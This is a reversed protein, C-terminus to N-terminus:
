VAGAHYRFLNEPDHARKVAALRALHAPSYAARAWQPESDPLLNVYPGVSVRGLGRWLDEVLALPERGATGPRWQANVEVFWRAERHAFATADPDVRAIAGGLPGIVLSVAPGGSRWGAVLEDVARDDLERLLEGRAYEARHPLGPPRRFFGPYQAYPMRTVGDHVVPPLAARLPGLVRGARDPHGCWSPFLVLCPELHLEEPVFPVPPATWAVAAFSAEDPAGGIWDRAARLADAAHAARVVVPGCVIDTVPHLGFEFATVVGFAGGGGRLAWFLDPHSDATVRLHEGAATVLAFATVNDCALGISRSLEGIGGGLTYGAIGVAPGHGGPAALGHPLTAADFREWTLGPGALVTAVARDVWACDLAGLDAVIGDDCTGWGAVHQGGGRVAVGLGHEAAHRVVAAVDHSDACRVVAAPRRDVAPNAVARAADYGPDGPAVVVGSVVARLGSFREM